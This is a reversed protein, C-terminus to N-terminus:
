MWPAPISGMVTGRGITFCLMNAGGVMTGSIFIVDYGSIDM